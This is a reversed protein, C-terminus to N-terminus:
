PVWLLWPSSSGLSRARHIAAFWDLHGPIQASFDVSLMRVLCGEAFNECHGLMLQQVM